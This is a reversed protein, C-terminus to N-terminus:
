SRGGERKEDLETFDQYKAAKKLWELTLKEKKRDAMIKGLRILQRVSRGSIGHFAKACQVPDLDVKYQAALVTWVRIPDGGTPVDYRVHATVRSVIADDIITDRNTTMFLIGKYYELLRLFVGVIANQQIDDGREHIYVDAEDILLIARWRVARALVTALNKELAEEDTGLQSCQITYLPRRAVESYVEATLTKGTGPKGSCMIIVGQAKGRIIDSMKQIASDTLTDILDRHDEPLILKKHLTEDYVYPKLSSIHCDLFDHTGLDFMRVVPHAPLTYSIEGDESDDASHKSTWFKTNSVGSEKGQDILDDMVLKAPEGERELAVEERNWKSDGHSHAMGTGLYQEGTLPAHKKYLVIDAEYASVMEETEIYIEAETLIERATKSGLKVGLDEREFNVTSEAREGRRVGLMTMVVRAPVSFGRGSDPPNYKVSTVFYPTLVGYVDDNLFVWKHPTPAVLEKIAEALVELKRIKAGEAGVEMLSAAAELKKFIRRNEIHQWFEGQKVVKKIIEIEEPSIFKTDIERGRWTVLEDTFVKSKCGAKIVAKLTDSPLHIDM